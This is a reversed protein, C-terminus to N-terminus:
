PIHQSLIPGRVCAFISLMSAIWRLAAQKTKLRKRLVELTDFIISSSLHGESWSLRRVAWRVMSYLIRCSNTQMFLMSYGSLSSAVGVLIHAALIGCVIGVVTM